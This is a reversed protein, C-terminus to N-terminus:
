PNNFIGWIVSAVYMVLSARSLTLSPKPGTDCKWDIGTVLAQPVGDGGRASVEDEVEAVRRALRENEAEKAKAQWSFHWMDGYPSLHRSTQWLSALSGPWACSLDGEVCM